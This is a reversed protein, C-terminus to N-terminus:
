PYLVTHGDRFTVTQRPQDASRPYRGHWVYLNHRVPVTVRRGEVTFSVSAVGDLAIGALAVPQDDPQGWVEPGGHSAFVSMVPTRRSLADSCLLVHESASAMCLHGHATPMVYVAPGAGTLRRSQGSLIADAGPRTLTRFEAPLGDRPTRPHDAAGIGALGGAAVATGVALALLAGALLLTRRRSLRRLGRSVHQRAAPETCGLRVAIEGYSLGDVVRLRVASRQEPPLRGLVRALRVGAAGADLREIVQDDEDPPATRLLGLRRRARALARQDREYARLKSRAIAHVWAAGSAPRVGRFTGVEGLASLFTDATLDLAVQEDRCAAALSRYVADAHRRYFAAFAEPDRHSRRLLASDDVTMSSLIRHQARTHCRARM